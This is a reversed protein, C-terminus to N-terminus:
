KVKQDEVEKLLVNLAEDLASVGHYARVDDIHESSVTTRGISKGHEDTVVLTVRYKEM